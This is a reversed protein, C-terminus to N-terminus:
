SQVGKLIKLSRELLDDRNLETKMIDAIYTEMMKEPSVSDQIKIEKQEIDVYQPSLTIQYKQKLARFESSDQIARVASHSTKLILKYKGNLSAGLFYDNIDDMTQCEKIFYQPLDLRIKKRELTETDFLWVGKPEGADNFNMQYPTGSYWVNGVQQEKHIDGCVVLNFNAVSKIPFGNPCYFGNEFQAGEFTQHCFLIGGKNPLNKQFKSFEKYFPMFVLNTNHLELTEDIVTVDSKDKFAVLAHINSGPATEDHNGKILIHHVLITDLYKSWVNLVESRIIAHSNFLDGLIVVYDVENETWAKRLQELYAQFVQLNNAKGHPDGSILLKM